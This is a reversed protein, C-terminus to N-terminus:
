PSTIPNSPTHYAGHHAVQLALTLSANLSYQLPSKRDGRKGCNRLGVNGSPSPSRLDGRCGLRRAM